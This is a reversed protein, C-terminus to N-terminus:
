TVIKREAMVCSLPSVAIFGPILRAYGTNRRRDSYDWKKAVLDRHWRLITDPTVITTLEMLAKRGLAKGKVALLRRQDDTLLVRKKGLKKLLAEIEANQFEIIQQQRRNVWASLAVFVVQWPQLVFSM